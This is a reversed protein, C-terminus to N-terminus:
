SGLTVTTVSKTTKLTNVADTVGAPPSAYDAYDNITVTAPLGGVRNTLNTLLTIMDTSNMKSSRYDTLSFSTINGTGSIDLGTWDILTGNLILLTLGTPL